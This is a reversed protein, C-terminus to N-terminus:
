IYIYLIITRGIITRLKPLLYLLQVNTVYHRKFRQKFLLILYNSLEFIRKIYM